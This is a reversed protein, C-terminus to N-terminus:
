RCESALDEPAKLADPGSGNCMVRHKCGFWTTAEVALKGPTLGIFFMLMKWDRGLADTGYDIKHSKRIAALPAQPDAENM